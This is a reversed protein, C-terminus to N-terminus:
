VLVHLTGSAPKNVPFRRHMFYGGSDNIDDINNDIRKEPMGNKDYVQQELAETYSPCRDTNVYYRRVGKADCFGLNMSVVRDKIFPNKNPANIAFGGQRLLKIDSTSASKSTTNKGTADPYVTTPHGPFKEGIVKIMSPTDAVDTIEDLAMPYSDRIVHITANMNMVNFDMGIHLPEHPKIEANVHNEKRDFNYYVTGSTLNVFQGNLYAAILPEPYQSELDSIYNPPLNKANSYTSMQILASDELPEKRFLKYTAKFGEPTTTIYKQNKKGDPFKQRCRASVKRIVKLAKDTPLLDFEDIFADGVQWGVLLDPNDMTRCFIQGMGQIHVIHEGKNITFDKGPKMGMDVLTETVYPYFIDRILSYTPALYALDVGPYRMKTGLLRTWAVRTKGSGFGAVAAVYSQTATFFETQPPTLHTDM